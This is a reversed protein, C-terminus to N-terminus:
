FIQPKFSVHWYNIVKKFIIKSGTTKCISHQKKKVEFRGTTAHM